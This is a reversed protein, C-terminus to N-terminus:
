ARNLQCLRMLMVAFQARTAQGQPNLTGQSTGNIIGASVAWDMAAEAYGSIDGVDPFEWIAMGGQTTDYGMLRAFRYLLAALQQRTVAGGPTTGDSIGNGMAWTRAAAMNAPNEGSLRALIMWVQQRSITGGPLFTGASVGNMYGNTYAWAIADAAWYDEPVDTFPLPASRERFAVSITVRGRPQEFTFTGDGNDIVEVEDGNRDTVTVEEVEYGQDPEVTITVDDGAGPTRPNVRVTGGNGVDLVPSYSPEGSGGTSASEGFRAYYTANGTVTIPGTVETGGTEADFWGLFTDSGTPVGGPLNVTGGPNTYAAAFEEDGNLFAAKFVQKATPDFCLLVPFCDGGVGLTQGWVQSTQVGQLLWAVEGSAFEANSKVGAGEGIGPNNGVGKDATGTLYYCNSVTTPLRDYNLGIVGGVIGSGSVSGTNYCNSINGFSCEGVVGGVTGSGSVEGTNYCNTVESSSSNGAIGGACSDGIVSGTNCCNIISGYSSEGAIGGANATVNGTGTGKASVAGKSICGTVEGSNKGVIGGVVTRTGNSNGTVTVDAMCNVIDGGKDCAGVIGGAYYYNFTGSRNDCGIVSGTVTLEKVTGEGVYGFLGLYVSGTGSTVDKNIYLGSITRGGGDFTGTFKNDSAGIPTWNQLVSKNTVEDGSSDETWTDTEPYYTYGPNMDIDKTLVYCASAYSHSGESGEVTYTEGKNILDRFYTLTPLDPIQFATDESLGDGSLTVGEPNAILIPRRLRADMEWIPEGGAATNLAELVSGVGTQAFEDATKEEASSTGSGVGSDATGTLYYCNTITSGTGLYGMVSGVNTGGSVNGTNYSYCVTNYSYSGSAGWGVVGGVYNSGNVNGTNYCYKVTSYSNGVVGGVDQNGTVSGTNCCGTVTGDNCGVVGGVDTGGTVSGAVTVNKVTGAEGVYGFLGQVDNTSNIYLGSITRGGGDFTGNFTIRRSFDVWGTGIPTWERGALDIDAALTITKDSFDTGGNVLQALGALEAATSITFEYENDSYWGTDARSDWGDAAEPEEAGATVPLMTLCLALVLLISGFKQLRRM